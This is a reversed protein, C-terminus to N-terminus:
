TPSTASPSIRSSSTTAAARSISARRRARDGEAPGDRRPRLHAAPRSGMKVGTWGNENHSATVMAVAPVDLAFQAFYAMPTMPSASTTSRAARRGDPRHDAGDQDRLFLRPLRPRHRGRPAVGLEGLLTGLGMGLATVGMLNLEPPKTPARSASGGARTTNASAPRSSWRRPRSTTPTRAHPEAVPKPFM